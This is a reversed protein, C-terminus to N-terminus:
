GALAMGALVAEAGAVQRVTKPDACDSRTIQWDVKKREQAPRGGSISRQQGCSLRDVPTPKM